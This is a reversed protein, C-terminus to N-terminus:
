CTSWNDPIHRGGQRIGGNDAINEGLTLNGNV